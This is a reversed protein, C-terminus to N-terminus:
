LDDPKHELAIFPLTKDLIQRALSECQAICFDLSKPPLESGPDFRSPVMNGEADVDPFQGDQYHACDYGFYWLGDDLERCWDNKDWTGAYTISGHVDFAIEPSTERGEARLLSMAGRQGLEEEGTVDKIYPSNSSYDLGHLPHKADVGVYGCYFKGRTLIIAAKFGAATKWVRMVKSPQQVAKGTRM